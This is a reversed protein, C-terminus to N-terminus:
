SCWFQEPKMVPSKHPVFITKVYQLFIVEEQAAKEVVHIIQKEREPTVKEDWKKIYVAAEAAEKGRGKKILWRPTDKLLRCSCGLHCYFPIQISVVSVISLLINLVAANYLFFSNNNFLYPFAFPIMILPLLTIAAAVRSLTKWDECLYAIGALIIYNPSYTVVTAMWMRHKDPLNEM